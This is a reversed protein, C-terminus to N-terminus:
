GVPVLVEIEPISWGLAGQGGEDVMVIVGTIERDVWAFGLEPRTPDSLLRELLQLQHADDYFALPVWQGDLRRAGIKFRTPFQSDQRLRMRVGSVRVPREFTVEFFEDGALPGGVEWATAMDGDAAPLPDGEKTRYRWSPEILRKGTPTPAAKIDAPSVIRYVEDATGDYVRGMEGAFRAVQRLRGAALQDHLPGLIPFAEPRGQHVVVTDVGANWLGRLSVDEPFQEALRRMLGTLIPPYSTYGHIIPRLHRTSFYMELTEKRVLLEGHIPVEAIAGGADRKLWDYVVPLGGGVPIRETMPLPSLHELPILFALLLAPARLGKRGLLTVAM